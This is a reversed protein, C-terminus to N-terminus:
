PFSDWILSNKNKKVNCYLYIEKETLARWYHTIGSDAIHSSSDLSSLLQEGYFCQYQNLKKLCINEVAVIIIPNRILDTKNIPYISWNCIYKLKFIYKAM